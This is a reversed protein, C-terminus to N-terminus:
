VHLLFQSTTTSNRTFLEGQDTRPKDWCGVAYVGGRHDRSHYIRAYKCRVKLCRAVLYVRVYVRVYVYMSRYVYVATILSATRSDHYTKYVHKISKSQVALMEGHVSCVHICTISYGISHIYRPQRGALSMRHRLIPDSYLGSIIDACQGHGLKVDCISFVYTILLM